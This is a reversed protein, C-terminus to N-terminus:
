EFAVESSFPNEKSLEEADLEADFEESLLRHYKLQELFAKRSMDGNRRSDILAQYAINSAEPIDWENSISISGTPEISHWQCSLKYCQELCHNASEVWSDLESESQATEIAEATATRNGPARVLNQAGLAAMEEKLDLLDQRGASIASGSHEVFSFKADTNSSIIANQSSLKINTEGTLTDKFDQPSFGAGFLM